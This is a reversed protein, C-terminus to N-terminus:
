GGVASGIATATVMMGVVYCTVGTGNYWPALQEPSRRFRNFAAMQALLLGGVLLGHLRFEATWLYAIVGAQAAFMVFGAVLAAREPGLMVPLSRIGMQIDGEIAKFDNLTMIGHAGVSYLVAVLLVEPHPVSGSALLAAGTVWALGEYSFGVAANGWWGNLKLRFPQASYAYALVLGLLTACGVVFSIAFGVVLGLLSWLIAFYFANRSSVRGSPIPREPQNIADVHRDCWDNIIQSAGCVLPGTLCVGLLVLVPSDTVSHGSSVIGCAFAWMPPFWTIPKTLEVYAALQFRREYNLVNAGAM